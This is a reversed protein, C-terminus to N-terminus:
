KALGDGHHQPYAMGKTGHTCKLDKVTGVVRAPNGAVVMGPAVDRVVVAGAGVLVNEGIVIRPLITVNIGIRAGSKITPGLMCETCIPHLDNAIKVGPAMFVDDEITTFQAVYVDTHIKVNSGILCGYDILSNGWISVNDGIRNEERIVVNHGTEFNRGITAGLYIVTGSRLRAGPGITLGLDAVKRGPRYGVIVSPDIARPAIIQIRFDDEKDM